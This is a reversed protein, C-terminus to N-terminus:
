RQKGQSIPRCSAREAKGASIQLPTNVKVTVVDNAKCGRAKDERMGDVLDIMRLLEDIRFRCRGKAADVFADTSAANTWGLPIRRLRKSSDQFYVRDEGWVQRQTLLKFEHGHLPHFPHTVRV